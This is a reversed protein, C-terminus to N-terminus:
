GAFAGSASAIEKAITPQIADRAGASLSTALSRITLAAILRNGEADPAPDGEHIIKWMLLATLALEPPPEAKPSV